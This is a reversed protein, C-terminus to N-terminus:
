ILLFIPPVAQAAEELEDLHGAIEYITRLVLCFFGFLIGRGRTLETASALPKLLLLAKTLCLPMPLMLAPWTLWLQRTTWCPSWDERLIFNWTIYLNQCLDGGVHHGASTVKALVIVIDVNLKVFIKRPIIHVQAIEPQYPTYQTTWGPNEFM